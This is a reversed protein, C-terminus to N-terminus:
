NTSEGREDGQVDDAFAFGLESRRALRPPPSPHGTTVFDWEEGGRKVLADVDDKLLFREDALKNAAAAFKELYEERSAYRGAIPTRSDDDSRKKPM